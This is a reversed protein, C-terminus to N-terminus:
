QQRGFAAAHRNLPPRRSLNQINSATWSLITTKSSNLPLTAKGKRQFLMASDFPKKVNTGRTCSMTKALPGDGASNFHRLIVHWLGATQVEQHVPLDIVLTFIRDLNM